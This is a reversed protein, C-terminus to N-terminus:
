VNNKQKKQNKQNKIKKEYPLNIVNNSEDSIQILLYLIKDKVM